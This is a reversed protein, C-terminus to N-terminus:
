CGTNRHTKAGLHEAGPSDRWYNARRHGISGHADPAFKLWESDLGLPAVRAVDQTINSGDISAPVIAVDGIGGRIAVLVDGARLRAREFSREIEVTTHCLSEPQLRNQAVDGGKVLMVGNPRVDPGPLVIGYM